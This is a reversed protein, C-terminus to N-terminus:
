RVVAARPLKRQLNAAGAPTFAAHTIDIKQLARLRAIV